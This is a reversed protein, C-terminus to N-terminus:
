IIRIQFYKLILELLGLPSILPSSEHSISNPVQPQLASRQPQHSQQQKVSLLQSM